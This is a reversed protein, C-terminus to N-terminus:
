NGLRILPGANRSTAIGGLLLLVPNRALNEIVIIFLQQFDDKLFFEGLVDPIKGAIEGM